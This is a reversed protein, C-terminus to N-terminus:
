RSVALLWPQEERQCTSVPLRVATNETLPSAFNASVGGELILRAIRAAEAHGSRDWGFYALPLAGHQRLLHQVRLSWGPPLHQRGRRLVRDINDLLGPDRLERETYLRYAVGLPRLLKALCDTRALVEADVDREFKIEVLELVDTEVILDPVHRYWFGDRAYHVVIPQECFWRVCQSADLLRVADAELASECQVIRDLKWSPVISIPRPASRRVLDRVRHRGAEPFELRPTTGSAQINSALKRLRPYLIPTASTSHPMRLLDTTM